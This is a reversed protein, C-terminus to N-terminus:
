NKSTDAISSKMLRYFEDPEKGLSLREMPCMNGEPTQICPITRNFHYKVGLKELADIAPQSGLPSWVEQCHAKICLLAAARGLIKDFIVVNRHRSGFKDLYEILALLRDKDSSFILKSNKYIRLTNASGVFQAFLSKYVKDL